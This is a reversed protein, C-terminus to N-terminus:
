QLEDLKKLIAKAFNEDQLAVSARFEKGIIRGLEERSGTVRFPVEYFECSNRFKKKTNDSADEAVLVLLAKGSKISKEVAFEGSVLKGAKMALGLMSLAKNQNSM